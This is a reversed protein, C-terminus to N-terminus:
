FRLCADWDGNGRRAPEESFGDSVAIVLPTSEEGPLATFTQKVIYSRPRAITNIALNLKRERACLWTHMWLKYHALVKAEVDSFAILEGFELDPMASDGFSTM